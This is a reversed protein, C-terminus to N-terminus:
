ADAVRQAEALAREPQDDFDAAEIATIDDALSEEQAKKEKESLPEVYPFIFDRVNM